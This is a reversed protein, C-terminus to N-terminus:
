PLLISSQEAKYLPYLSKFSYRCFMSPYGSYVFRIDIMLVFIFIFFLFTFFANAANKEAVSTTSAANARTDQSLSSSTCCSYGNVTSVIGTGVRM